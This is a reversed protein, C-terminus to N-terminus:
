PGGFTYAALHLYSPAGYTGEITSFQKGQVMGQDEKM